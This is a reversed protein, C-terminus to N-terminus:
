GSRGAHVALQAYLDELVLRVDLHTFIRLPPGDPNAEYDGTDTLRPRPREVWRSSTPEPHFSSVLATLLVLPSDGLVYTEGLGWTTSAGGLADYLHAGLPGHPQMRTLLEARSALVQVYADRPVQWVRLDSENFVVQAALLDITSNYEPWPQGPPAGLDEHERGGIWVLTLREAIRPETLWASAVGTLGGGCTVFLPLDTDDRMAEAVIVDAGPSAAPTAVDVLPGAAGALIPVDTRGALEAVVRAADVAADADRGERADTDYAPNQPSGVVARVDVSPSLLAHALQVLGDPDGAYDNDTVVRSRPRVDDWTV